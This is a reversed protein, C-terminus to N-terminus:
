NAFQESDEFIERGQQILGEVAIRDFPLVDKKIISTPYVEYGWVRDHVADLVPTLKNDIQKIVFTAHYWDSEIWFIGDDYLCDYESFMVESSTTHASKSMGRVWNLMSPVSSGLSYAINAAREDELRYNIMSRYDIM